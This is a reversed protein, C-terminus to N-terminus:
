ASIRQISGGLMAINEEICAYGRDMHHIHDIETTGKAVLGAIVLSASARLDTARVPAANLSEVGHIIATNGELHIDAGMRQMEQCHMFRNEFITEKIRSTGKAVANLACFQAQVDTAIAPYPATEINIAQPRKGQMDLEVWNDGCRIVAGAEKLKLLVAELYEPQVDKVKVKGRTAAAAILYTS